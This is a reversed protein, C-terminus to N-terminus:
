NSSVGWCKSCPEYGIQKAQNLSMQSSSKMNGCNPIRHYKTGTDSVYVIRSNDSITGTNTVLTPVNTTWAGSSNLYYSGVFCDHAMYGDSRFYYWNGDISKWGTAFSNGETYWWGTSDQRWEAHAAVPTIALLTIFTIVGALLRKFKQM